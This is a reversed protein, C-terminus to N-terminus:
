PKIGPDDNSEAPEEEDENPNPLPAGKPVIWLRLESVMFDPSSAYVIILRDPGIKHTTALDLRWKEVLKTLDVPPREEVVPEASPEPLAIVTTTQQENVTPEPQELRVVLFARVTKDLELIESLRTFLGKQSSEEDLSYIEFDGVKVTKALPKEAGADPVPQPANNPLIWYQIHSKEEQGGFILKFRSAELNFAKFNEIEKQGLKRWAGPTLDEGSYVVIYGVANKQQHLMDAFSADSTAGIGPGMEDFYLIGFDDTTPADDFLGQFTEISTEHKRPKPLRAGQPILWFETKAEHLDSNRGGYITEFRDPVIGRSNVLYDQIMELFQRGTRPGEGEPGYVVIAGRVTPTDRLAIAFNDIRAGVDCHGVKGFEDFKVAKAPASKRTQATVSALSPSSLVLLLGLYFGLITLVKPM